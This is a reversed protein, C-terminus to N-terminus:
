RRYTIGVFPNFDDASETLGIFVGADLQIDEGIQYTVGMDYTMPWDAHSKFTTAMALEMFLGLNDTIDKGLTVTNFTEAQYGNDKDNRIINLQTMWGLGFGHGIDYAFPVIIGGEISDNGLNDQNTPFKIFPMVALAFKGEDNGVLNQKFRTTIDGFGAQKEISGTLLDKTSAINFSEVVFQIDSSNTLGFKINNM